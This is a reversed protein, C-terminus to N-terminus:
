SYWLKLLQIHKKDRAKVSEAEGKEFYSVDYDFFGKGSKLGLHGAEIMEKLEVPPEHADSIQKFLNCAVIYFTDLGGLDAAELAGVASWRFGLSAKVVLDIDEPSAIKQQWLSWVERMMSLQLRNLIFGPIERYIKVPVKKVKKLLDYTLQMTEESTDENKVVEVLPVLHPPNVWHTIVAKDKRQCPATIDKLLLASTNSALITHKPCLRDLERFLNQKISLDEKVVETVFDADSVAEELDATITIRALTPGIIDPSILGNEAFIELADRVHSMANHLIEDNMDNLTVPYGGLAYVLGIGHGMTGAGVITIKQIDELQM